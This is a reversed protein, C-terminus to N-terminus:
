SPGTAGTTRLTPSRIMSAHISEFLVPHILHIMKLPEPHAPQSPPHKDTLVDKVTRNTGVHDHQHFVRGKVEETLLHIAAKTKGEFM